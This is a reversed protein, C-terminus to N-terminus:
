RPERRLWGASGRGCFSCGTVVHADVRGPDSVGIGRSSEPEIDVDQPLGGRTDRVAECPRDLLSGNALRNALAATNALDTLLDALFWSQPRRFGRALARVQPNTTALPPTSGGVKRNESTRM